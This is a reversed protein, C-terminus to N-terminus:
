EIVERENPVSILAFLLGLLSSERACRTAINVSLSIPTEFRFIAVDIENYRSSSVCCKIGVHPSEGQSYRRVDVGLLM